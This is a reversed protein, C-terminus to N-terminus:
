QRNLSIYCSLEILARREAEKLAHTEDRRSCGSVELAHLIYIFLIQYTYLYYICITHIYITYLIAIAQVARKAAAVEAAATAEM